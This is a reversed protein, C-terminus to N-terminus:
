AGGATKVLAAAYFGDWGTAAPSVTLEAAPTFGGQELLFATQRANESPLISCTAYVLRGGAKLMAPLTLLIQRQAARTEDLQRPTLRWKLDPQRRLTGLGSCPVDLLLRDAWGDHLATTDQHLPQTRVNSVIARAVRRKLEALKPASPDFARIEGRNEMLAALHLTKGGAGACADVVRMGPRADLLPAIQQSGADQIEFWGQELLRAPVTKGPELALADPAGAVPSAALGEAAFRDQAEDRSCRLRNVRLVVPARRNLAELEREWPEAGLEDRGLSDLWDPISERVAFPQNTLDDERSAFGAASEGRWTWWAPLELGMRIWQAALLAPASEGGAVFALARRWRVVEFVSEAVFGRDRKGWKPNASFAAALERDLVRRHEFVAAVIAASAEALIRHIKM